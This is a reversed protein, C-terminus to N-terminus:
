AGLIGATILNFEPKNYMALPDNNFLVSIRKFEVNGSGNTAPKQWNLYGTIRATLLNGLADRAVVSDGDCYHLIYNLKTQNDLKDQWFDYDKYKNLAAPSGETVEIAIRDEFTMERGVLLQLNPRCDSIPVDEYTPDTLLVNSLESSLVISGDTYLAAINEDTIPDPIDVSCDLFSIRSLTKKRVSLICNGDPNSILDTACSSPCVAM